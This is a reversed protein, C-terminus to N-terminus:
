KGNANAAYVDVTKDILYKLNFAEVIVVNHTNLVASQEGELPKAPSTM